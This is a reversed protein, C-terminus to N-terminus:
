HQILYLLIVIFYCMCATVSFQRLSILLFILGSLSKMLLVNLHIVGKVIDNIPNLSDLHLDFAYVLLLIYDYLLRM